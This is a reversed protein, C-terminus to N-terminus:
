SLVTVTSFCAISSYFELTLFCSTQEATYKFPCIIYKGQLKNSNTCKFDTIM